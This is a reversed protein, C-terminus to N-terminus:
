DRPMVRYLEHESTIGERVKRIASTKLTIMGSTVASNMIAAPSSGKLIQDKIGEKMRLIEYIATRGSYGTHMCKACGRPKYFAIGKETINLRKLDEAAPPYSEKCAPCLLRILRQSVIGTLASTLLTADVGMHFLRTLAAGSDQAHLTSIVLCGSLVAEVALRVEERGQIEGFVLVDPLQSLIGRLWARTLGDEPVKLHAVGKVPFKRPSEFVFIIKEPSTMDRIVGNVTATRGSGPPGAFVVFGHPRHILEELEKRLEDPFGLESIEHEKAELNLLRFAIRAGHATPLTSAGLYIDQGQLAGKYRGEAFVSLKEETWNMLQLFRSLLRQYMDRTIIAVDYTVGHIRFRIRADFERPAVHFDAAQLRYARLILTDLPDAEERIVVEGELPDRSQGSSEAMEVAHVVEGRLRGLVDKIQESPALVPIVGSNTAMSVEDMAVVDLPDAMALLIKGGERRVPLVLNKELFDAPIRKILQEDISTTTLDLYPIGLQKGLFNIIDDDKVAGMEVLIDGLRKDQSEEQLRLARRLVDQSIIGSRVLMDGLPLKWM